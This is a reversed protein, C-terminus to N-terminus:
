WRRWSPCAQNVNIHSFWEYQIAEKITEKLGNLDSWEVRRVFGCWANELIKVPNFPTIQNWNPTSSTKVNLPTTPSAQGTTLAYNQNDCTIHLININNRAAHLLHWLGIGYSDWDGSLSIVTLEPNALKVGTAFPIWRWHLTEAGYCDVYQNMKSWCGIGTVFVVNEKGIWLSELAQKIALHVLFNWCWPCRQISQLNTRM